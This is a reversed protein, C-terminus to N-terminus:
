KKALIARKSNRRTQDIREHPRSGFVDHAEEDTYFISVRWHGDLHRWRFEVVPVDDIVRTIMSNLPYFHHGYASGVLAGPQEGTRRCRELAAAIVTTEAERRDMGADFELIAAREEFWELWCDHSLKWYQINM